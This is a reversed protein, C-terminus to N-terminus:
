VAPINLCNGIFFSGIGSQCGSMRKTSNDVTLIAIYYQVKSIVLIFLRTRWYNQMWIQMMPNLAHSGRYKQLRSHYIVTITHNLYVNIIAYNIYKGYDKKYKYIQLYREISPKSLPFIESNICVDILTCPSQICPSWSRSVSVWDNHRLEAFPNTM